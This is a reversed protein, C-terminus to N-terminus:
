RRRSRNINRKRNKREHKGRNNNLKSKKNIRVKRLLKVKPWYLRPMAYAERLLVAYSEHDRPTEGNYIVFFKYTNRLENITIYFSEGAPVIKVIDGYRTIETGYTEVTWKVTDYLKLKM